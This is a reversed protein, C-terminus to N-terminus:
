RRCVREPHDPRVRGHRRQDIRDAVLLGPQRQRRGARGHVSATTGTSVASGHASLVTVTMPMDQTHGALALWMTKPMTWSTKDTYVVLDPNQNPATVHLEYLDGNGTSTWSFRPRLWNNPLLTGDQPELLCPGGSSAPTGAFAQTPARRFPAPATLASHAARSTPHLRRCLRVAALQGRHGDALGAAGRRRREAASGHGDIRRRRHRQARRRQGRLRASLCAPLLLALSRVRKM